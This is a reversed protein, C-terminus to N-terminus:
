YCCHRMVEKCSRRSMGSSLRSSKSMRAFSVVPREPDSRLSSQLCAAPAGTLSCIRLSFPLVGASSSLMAFSTRRMKFPEYTSSLWLQGNLETM